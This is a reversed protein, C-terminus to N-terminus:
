KKQTTEAAVEAVIPEWKRQERQIFALLEAPSMSRDDRGLDALKKHAEPDSMAKILDANIKQVIADPTGAPALLAQWGM